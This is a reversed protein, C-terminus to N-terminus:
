QVIHPHQKARFGAIAATMTETYNGKYVPVVKYDSQTANFDTAIKDVREGNAGGMAHWWQVEVEAYAATSLALAGVTLASGLISYKM